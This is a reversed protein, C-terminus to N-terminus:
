SETDCIYVGMVKVAMFVHTYLVPAVSYSCRIIASTQKKDAIEACLM